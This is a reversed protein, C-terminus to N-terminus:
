LTKIIQALVARSKLPKGNLMSHIITRLLHKAEIKSVKDLKERQQLMLLTRGSIDGSQHNVIGKVPDFLYRNDSIVSTETLSDYDLHFGYGIESLLDLEFYRLTQEIDQAKSLEVLCQRYRLYLQHHPDNIFVFHSILENIYYGCYLSLTEFEFALTECEVHTLTKLGQNGMYSIKLERFVLLLGALKSKKKRVGKAIVSVMGFDQTFFDIILSTERYKRHQIVFAPQLLIHESM